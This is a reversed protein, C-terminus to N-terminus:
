TVDHNEQKTCVSADPQEHREVACRKRNVSVFGLKKTGASPRGDCHKTSWKGYKEPHMRSSAQEFHPRKSSVEHQIAIFMIPHRVNLM